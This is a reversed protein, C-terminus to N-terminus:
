LVDHVDYYEYSSYRTQKRVSVTIFYETAANVCYKDQIIDKTRMPNLRVESYVILCLNTISTSICTYV